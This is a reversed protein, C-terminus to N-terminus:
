LDGTKALPVFRGCNRALRLNFRRKSQKVRSFRSISLQQEIEQVFVDFESLALRDPM